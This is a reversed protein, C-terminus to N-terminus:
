KQASKDVTPLAVASHVPVTVEIAGPAPCHGSRCPSSDKANSTGDVQEPKKGCGSLVGLVVVLVVSSVIRM